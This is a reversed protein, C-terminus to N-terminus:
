RAWRRLATVDRVHIRRRGTEVLGRERLTRLAKSVGERSAGVWGALEDQTLALTIDVGSGNATGFRDALELLRLAVRGTTDFAGFEVRKRDSDRLRRSLLRLLELAFRPHDAIFARFAEATVIVAEVPELATVNASRAQGDIASLEGLLEGAAPLALVIEAGDDTFTSVKVRGRLVYGVTESRDGEQFLTAGRPFRRVRGRARLDTVEEATLLGGSSAVV